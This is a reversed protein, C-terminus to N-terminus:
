SAACCDAPLVATSCNQGSCSIKEVCLTCADKSQQTNDRLKFSTTGCIM